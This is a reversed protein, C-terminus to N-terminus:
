GRGCARRCGSSLSASSSWGKTRHATMVRVGRGEATLERGTDAPIEQGAVETLFTRAGASGRLEDGREALDFMEVIADLDANARRSGHLAQVRLQEPWGTADWLEWLAVQVEAGGELMAAVRRLLAALAAAREAEPLEIGELLVPEALCRGLLLTSSGLAQHRGLLARALKRQAVGDLGCLPSSLLLRAQDAEPRAGDAAVQLALLLTGVAPQEAIAIEDGSVEVPVGLRVLEKAVLSLQTRGARTVVVLDSWTCGDHTVAHRLDAALHALEASTDDFIRARVVGEVGTPAPSAAAGRRDLRSDLDALAAAVARSNRFGTTLTVM